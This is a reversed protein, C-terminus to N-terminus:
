RTALLTQKQWYYGATPDKDRESITQHNPKDNNSGITRLGGDEAVLETHKADKSIWIDGARAEEASVKHYGEGPLAKQLEKVNIQHKKLDGSNVLNSTVFDACNNTEGGAAQFTPLKGKIDIANQGVFERASEVAPHKSGGYAAAINPVAAASAAAEGGRAEESLSVRDGRATPRALESASSRTRNAAQAPPASQAKKAPAPRPKSSVDKVPSALAPVEPERTNELGTYAAGWVPM